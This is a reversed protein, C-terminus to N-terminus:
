RYKSKTFNANSFPPDCVWITTLMNLMKRIAVNLIQNKNLNFNIFNDFVYFNLKAIM